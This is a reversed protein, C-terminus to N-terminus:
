LTYVLDDLSHTKEFMKPTTIPILLCLFVTHSPYGIAVVLIFM